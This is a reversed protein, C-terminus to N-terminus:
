MTPYARDHRRIFDRALPMIEQRWHRGSFVGYHGAHSQLHHARMGSPLNLCLKHAAFTQGVGSIDDREGEVTMLATKTVAGPDVLRGRHLLTGRALDFRQFVREVTQLYFEATIDMVSFYEDYFREHTQAQQDEGQAVDEFYRLHALFHTSANMSMFAGLQVFGPYVRRGAGAYGAPVVDIMNREFWEITHATAFDNVATPNVRGDIPGAMLVMSAPRAEDGDASMLSTAVLAPVAGQCVGLIHAGPGLLRLFDVIYDVYDDFDFSGTAVPVDRANAWDTVYVDHEPLLAEVTGRLLSAFHGSMPSIILVRPDDGAVDRRFHVFDCFPKRLAVEQVVGCEAGDVITWDLGFEPKEYRRTLREFLRAGAVLGNNFYPLSWAPSALVGRQGFELAAARWPEWARHISEYVQYL